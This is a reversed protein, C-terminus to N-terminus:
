YFVYTGGVCKMDPLQNYEISRYNVKQFGEGNKLYFFEPMYRLKRTHLRNKINSTFSQHLVSYYYYLLSDM